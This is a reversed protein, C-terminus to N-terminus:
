TNRHSDMRSREPCSILNILHEEDSDDRQQMVESGTKPDITETLLTARYAVTVIASKVFLSVLEM